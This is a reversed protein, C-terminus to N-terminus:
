SAERGNCVNVKVNCCVSFMCKASLQKESNTPCYLKHFIIDSKLVLQKEKSVNVWSIEGSAMVPLRDALFGLEIEHEIKGTGHHHRPAPRIPGVHQTIVVTRCRIYSLPRWLRGGARGAGHLTLPGHLARQPAKGSCYTLLRASRSEPLRSTGEGM